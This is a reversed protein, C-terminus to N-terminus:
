AAIKYTAGLQELIEKSQATLEEVLYFDDELVLIEEGVFVENGLADVGYEERKPSYPPHGTREMHTITPHEM